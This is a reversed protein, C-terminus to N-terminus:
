TTGFDIGIILSDEVEDEDGGVSLSKLKDSLSSELPM